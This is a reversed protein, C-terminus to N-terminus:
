RSESSKDTIKLVEYDWRIDPNKFFSEVIFIYEQSLVYNSNSEFQGILHDIFCSCEEALEEAKHKSYGASIFEDLLYPEFLVRNGDRSGFFGDRLIEISLSNDSFKRYAADVIDKYESSEYNRRISEIISRNFLLELTTDMNAIFHNLFALFSDNVGNYGNISSNAALSNLKKINFDLIGTERSIQNATLTISDYECLIYGPSCNYLSCLDIIQDMTPISNEGTAQKWGKEWKYVTPKSYNLTDALEDLTLNKSKRLAHLRQAIAARISANTITEKYYNIM